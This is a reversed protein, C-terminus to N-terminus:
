RCWPNRPVGSCPDPMSPEKPLPMLSVTTKQPYGSNGPLAECHGFVQTACIAQLLSAPVV